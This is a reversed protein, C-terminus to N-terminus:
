AYGAQEAYLKLNCASNYDRDLTSNCSDCHYTRDSLSLKEGAAYMQQWLELATNYVYRSYGFCARFRAEMTKNPYIRVKHTIIM